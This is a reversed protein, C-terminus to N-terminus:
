DQWYYPLFTFRLIPTEHFFLVRFTKFFSCGHVYWPTLLFHDNKPFNPTSQKRSVGKKLSASENYLWCDWDSPINCPLKKCSWFTMLCLSVHSSHHTYLQAWCYIWLHYFCHQSLTKWICVCCFFMVSLLTKKRFYIM